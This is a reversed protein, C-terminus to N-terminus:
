LPDKYFIIYSQPSIQTKKLLNDFIQYNNYVYFIRGLPFWDESM